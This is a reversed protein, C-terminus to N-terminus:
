SKRKEYLRRNLIDLLQQLQKASNCIYNKSDKFGLALDFEEQTFLEPYTSYLDRLALRLQKVKNKFKKNVQARIEQYTPNERNAYYVALSKERMQKAYDKNSVMKLYAKHQTQKHAQKAEAVTAYKLNSSGGLASNYGKQPNTSDLTKILEIELQDAQEKTLNSCLVEHKFNNWGYKKIAAMFHANHKYGGGYQWRVKAEQCTQGIYVKGNILNTHKYILYQRFDSM